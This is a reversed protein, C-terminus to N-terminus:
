RLAGVENVVSGKKLLGNDENECWKKGNAFFGGKFNAVKKKRICNEDCLLVSMYICVFLCCCITHKEANFFSSLVVVVSWSFFSVSVWQPHLFFFDKSFSSSYSAAEEIKGLPFPENWKMLMSALSRKAKPFCDKCDAEAILPSSLLFAPVTRSFKLSLCYCCSEKKRCTAVVVVVEGEREKQSLSLGQHNCTLQRETM